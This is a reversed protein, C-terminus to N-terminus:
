TSAVQISYQRRHLDGPTASRHASLSVWIYCRNCGQGPLVEAAYSSPQGFVEPPEM